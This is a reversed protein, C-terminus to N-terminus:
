RRGPRVLTVGSDAPLRIDGWPDIVVSGRPFTVEHFEPHNTTVVFVAPHDLNVRAVPASRYPDYARVSTVDGVNPPTERLMHQLLLAPSGDILPVGPKYTLGLLVAPLGTQEQWRAVLEALAATQVDRARALWGFLDVPLDARDELHALAILDRPHCQGGDGMGPRMYADSFIRRHAHRLGDVVADADAGVADCIAGLHNAWVIKMSILTNYAVKILEATVVSTMVNACNVKFVSAVTLMTARDAGGLLVFEPDTFDRLVTGMAIFQPSYVLRHRGLLPQLLRQTTGPLVTSVVVVIPPNDRTMTAAAIDRVAQVLYGYEFDRSDTPVPHTGDYEPAHPTQVAVFVVEADRVMDEVTSVAKFKLDTYTTAEYVKSLLDRVGPEVYGDPLRDDALADVLEVNVDYGAVEHGWAALQLACPLGLRGLGMWGIKM